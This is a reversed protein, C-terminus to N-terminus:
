TKKSIQEQELIAAVMKQQRNLWRWIRAILCSIDVNRVGTVSLKAQVNAMYKRVHLLATGLVNAVCM